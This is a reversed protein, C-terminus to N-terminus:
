PLRYPICHFDGQLLNGNPDKNDAELIDISLAGRGEPLNGNPDKGNEELLEPPFPGSGGLSIEVPM